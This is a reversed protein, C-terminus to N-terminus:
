LPPVALSATKDNIKVYGALSPDLGVAAKIDGVANARNGLGGFAAAAGRLFHARALKPDLQIATTEDRLASEYDHQSLCVHGRESWLAASKPQLGIAESYDGRAGVFNGRAQYIKARARLASVLKPNIGLYAEARNALLYVGAHAM